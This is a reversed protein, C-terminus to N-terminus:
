LPITIALRAGQGPESSLEFDGGLAESRERIGLLGLGTTVTSMDMGRGNDSITLALGKGTGAVGLRVSVQSADAHKAINTLSEQVIRYLGIEVDEGLESLEGSPAFECVTPRYRDNWDDIMEELASVLGLEDLAAPRLRRMMARVSAYIGDSVKAITEAAERSRPDHAGARQKISVAMAKIASIAQGLEDHLEQALARREDEQISLSASALRRTERESKELVSATHNFTEAIANLEPLELNPLRARYDGQEIRELGDLIAAVPKLSRGITMYVVVNAVVLLLVLLVFGIRAEQWAENVEAAPDPRLVIRTAQEGALDLERRLSAEDPEILGVFWDPASSEAPPGSTYHTVSAAGRQRILEIQLHRAPEMDALRELLDLENVHPTEALLLELLQASLQATSELEENVARRANHAVLVSGALLILLFLANILLTLRLSLSM